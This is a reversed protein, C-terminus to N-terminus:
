SCKRLKSVLRAFLNTFEQRLQRNALCYALQNVASGLFSLSLGLLFLGTQYSGRDESHKQYSVIVPLPLWCFLFAAVAIASLKAARGEVSRKSRERLVNSVACIDGCLSSNKRLASVSGSRDRVSVVHDLGASNAVIIPRSVAISNRFSLRPRAPGGNAVEVRRVTLPYSPAVRLTNRSDVRGAVSIKERSSTGNGQSASKCQRNNGTFKTKDYRSFEATRSLTSHHAANKERTQTFESSSSSASSTLRPESEHLSIKIQPYRRQRNWSSSLNAASKSATQNSIGLKSVSRDTKSSFLDPISQESQMNESLMFLRTPNKNRKGELATDGSPAVSAKMELKKSQKKLLLLIAAYLGLIVIATLCSLPVFINGYFYSYFMYIWRWDGDELNMWSSYTLIAVLCFALSTVWSIAITM